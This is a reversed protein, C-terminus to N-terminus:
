PVCSCVCVHQRGRVKGEEALSEVRLLVFGFALGQLHTVPPHLLGRHSRPVAEVVPSSKTIVHAERGGGWM